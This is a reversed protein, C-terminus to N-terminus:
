RGQKVIKIINQPMIIIVVVINPFPRESINSFIKNVNNKAGRGTTQNQEYTLLIDGFPM